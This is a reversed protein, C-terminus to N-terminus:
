DILRKMKNNYAIETTKANVLPAVLHCIEVLVPEQRDDSGIMRM